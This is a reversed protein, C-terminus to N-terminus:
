CQWSGNFYAPQLGPQPYQASRLNIEVVDAAGNFGALLPVVGDLPIDDGHAGRDSCWSGQGNIVGGTIGPPEPQTNTLFPHQLKLLLVFRMGSPVSFESVWAGTLTPRGFAAYAWPAFVFADLGYGLVALVPVGVFLLVLCGLCNRVLGGSPKVSSSPSATM